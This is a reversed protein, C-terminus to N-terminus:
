KILSLINNVDLDSYESNNLVEKIKNKCKEKYKTISDPDYVCAGYGNATEAVIECVLKAILKTLNKHKKSRQSHLYSLLAFFLTLLISIINFLLM